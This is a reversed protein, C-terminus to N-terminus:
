SSRHPATAVSRMPLRSTAMSRSSLPLDQPLIRSQGRCRRSRTASRTHSAPRWRASPRSGSSCPRTANSSRSTPSTRFRSCTGPAAVRHRSTRPAWGSRSTAAATPGATGQVRSAPHRRQAPRPPDGRDDAAVVADRRRDTRGVASRFSVGTITEAGRNFTLIRLGVDTTALGSPLSDIVHQNLAQLDAIQNSAEELQVGTTGVIEALSGSLLAIAFFGLVNLAAIYQAVSRPPLAVTQGTIWVHSM